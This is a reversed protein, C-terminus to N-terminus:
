AHDLALWRPLPDWKMFVFLRWPYWASTSRLIFNGFPVLFFSCLGLVCSSSGLALTFQEWASTGRVCLFQSALAQPCIWPLSSALEGGGKGTGSPGWRDSLISSLMQSGSGQIDHDSDKGLTWKALRDLAHCLATHLRLELYINGEAWPNLPNLLFKVETQKLYSENCLYGKWPGPKKPPYSIRRIYM